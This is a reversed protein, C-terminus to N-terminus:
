GKLLNLDTHDGHLNDHSDGHPPTGLSDVHDGHGTDSPQHLNAVNTHDGHLNDHLNGHPSTGLSDFHDGHPRYETSLPRSNNDNHQADIHDAHLNGHYRHLIAADIHDGHQNGHSRMGDNKQLRATDVHDGHARDGHAQDGHNNCRQSKLWGLDKPDKTEDKAIQIARELSIYNGSAWTTIMVQEIKKLYPQQTIPIEGVGRLKREMDAFQEKLVDCHTSRLRWDGERGEEFEIGTGPCYGTCVVFYQCGKCGGHEQPTNYLSLQRV